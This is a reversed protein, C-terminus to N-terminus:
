KILTNFIEIFKFSIKEIDFNAEAYKRANKAMKDRLNEDNYLENARLLYDKINKPEVCFGVSNQEVIRSALNGKPVALLLPKQACLYMLVKSPVSYLGADKELVALLVEASAYVMPMSEFPQYDLFLFNNLNEKEAQERLWNAVEGQAIIIIRVDNRDQFFRALEIFISPNHKFGLTGSYIFCFKNEVEHLKAWDNQKKLVPIDTIPAWNNIVTINNKNIRWRDLVPLFDESISVIHDSRFLLKKEKYEYFM